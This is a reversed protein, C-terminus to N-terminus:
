FGRPDLEGLSNISGGAIRMSSFREIWGTRFSIVSPGTGRQNTLRFLASEVDVGVKEVLDGTVLVSIGEGPLAIVIKTSLQVTLPVFHDGAWNELLLRM